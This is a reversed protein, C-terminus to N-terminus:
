FAVVREHYAPGAVHLAQNHKARDILWFEKPEGAKEFMMKAMAAKIYTDDAGHIMLLPRPSLKAMVPELHLYKVKRERGVRKLGAMAILGYYKPPMLGHM